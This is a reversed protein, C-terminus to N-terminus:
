PAIRLRQFLVAAPLAFQHFGALIALQVAISCSFVTRSVRPFTLWITPKKASRDARRSDSSRM